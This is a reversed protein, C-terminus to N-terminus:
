HSRGGSNFGASLMDAMGLIQTHIRDYAAIDADWDGGLRAGAEAFTLDLHERMMMQMDELPWDRPNLQHYFAGIEDGNAYWAASADTTRQTDGAKVAALLDAAGLIHTTLLATLQNGADAGFAPAFAAGIDAQNRLLRQTTASLDPLDALFSVIFLRTWTIHDEWLKRMADHLASSASPAEHDHRGRAATAGFTAVGLAGAGFLAAGKLAHRRSISGSYAHTPMPQDTM